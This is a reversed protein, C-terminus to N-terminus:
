TVCSKEFSEDFMDHRSPFSKSYHLFYIAMRKNKKLSSNNASVFESLNEVWFSIFYFKQLFMKM